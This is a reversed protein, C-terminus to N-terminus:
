QEFERAALLILSQSARVDLASNVLSAFVDAFKAIEAPKELYLAGTLGEICVVPPESDNGSADLPFRLLVFSPTDLGRHEGASFPMVQLSVNPLDSLEILRRLQAAMITRSGIPRRLITESLVVNFQPRAVPRFLLAQRAMRLKVRREILAEPVNPNTQRFLTRAYDETQFLGPVLDSVYDSLTSAAEELGVYLDLYDPMVDSYAHWWGLTKAQKALDKLAEALEAPVAYLRCMAEVDLKRLSTQGTEIRWM